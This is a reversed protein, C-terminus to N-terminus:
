RKNAYASIGSITGPILPVTKKSIQPLAPVTGSAVANRLAEASRMAAKDVGRAAFHGIGPVLIQGGPIMMGFGQGVGFSVVGRPAFKAMMQMVRSSDGGKAMQRVLATEEATFGLIRGTKIKKYLAQMERKAANAVGSQTYQGTKVDASDIIAEIIRTKEKRANLVRGQKIYDFGKIDGTIDGPNIRAEFADIQDKMRMLTRKDQPQARKMAQGVAQRIEDFEELSMNRSFLDDIDDLVGATNPRLTPNVRGAALKMNSKLNALSSAKITVGAARSQEYLVDTAAALDDVSAAQQTAAKRAARTAYANAAKQVLGGTAAGWLAGSKAGELREGSAAEGAGYGGGYLGGETMALATQTAKPAVRSLGPVQRGILTLGGKAATGGTVLGGAVEGTISAVPDAERRHAKEADFMARKNEYQSPNFMTMAAATLEDDYGATLGAGVADGSAGLFRGAKALLSTGDGYIGGTYRREYNRRAQEQHAAEPFKAEIMSRIQEKPMDDPFEVRDGNPMEVVPM